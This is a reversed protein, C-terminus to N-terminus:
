EIQSIKDALSPREKKEVLNFFQFAIATYPITYLLTSVITSLASYIVLFTQTSEPVTSGQNIAHQFVSVGIIISAPLQLVMGLIGAIIFVVIILLLTWWWALKTLDFSRGFADWFLKEEFILSPIMLILSVGVFIGPALCLIMGLGALLGTLLSSLLAPFFYKGVGSWVEELTFNDKGKRVYLKIYSYITTIVMTQSLITLVIVLLYLGPFELIYGFPNSQVTQPNLSMPLAKSQYYAMGIAAFLIAPVAYYLLAKGLPKFEQGIFAFTANMVDGFEREKRFDIIPKEM